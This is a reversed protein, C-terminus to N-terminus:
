GVKNHKLWYVLFIGRTESIVTHPLTQKNKNNLCKMLIAAYM